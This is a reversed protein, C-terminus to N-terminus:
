RIVEETTTWSDVVTRTQEHYSGLGTRKGVIKMPRLEGNIELLYLVGDPCPHVWRVKTLNM